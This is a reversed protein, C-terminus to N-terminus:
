TALVTEEIEEFSSRTLLDHQMDIPTKFTYGKAGTVVELHVGGREFGALM